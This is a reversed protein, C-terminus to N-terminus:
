LNPIQLESFNLVKGLDVSNNLPLDSNWIWTQIIGDDMNKTETVSKDM